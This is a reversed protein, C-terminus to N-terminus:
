NSSCGSGQILYNLTHRQGQSDEYVLTMPQIGCVGEDPTQSIVRAIDLGVTASHSAASEAHAALSFLSMVAIALLKKM